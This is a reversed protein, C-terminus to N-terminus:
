STRSRAAWFVHAGPEVAEEVITLHEHLSQVYCDYRATDWIAHAAARDGRLYQEAASVETAEDTTVGALREVCGRLHVCAIVLPVPRVAALRQWIREVAHTDLWNLVWPFLICDTDDLLPGVEADATVFTFRPDGRMRDRARVVGSESFDSGVYVADPPLVKALWSALLGTGCGLESLRRPQYKAIFGTIFPLYQDVNLFCNDQQDYLENTNQRYKERVLANIIDVRSTGDPFVLGHDDAIVLLEETSYSDM